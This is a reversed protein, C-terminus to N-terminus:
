DVAIGHIAELALAEGIRAQSYQQTDGLFVQTAVTVLQFHERDVLTNVGARGLKCGVSSVHVGGILFLAFGVRRITVLDHNQTTARVTDALTDLKVIAANM